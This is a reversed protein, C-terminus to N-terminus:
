SMLWNMFPALGNILLGAPPRGAIPEARADAALGAMLPGLVAGSLAGTTAAPIPRAPEMPANDTGGPHALATGAAPGGGAAAGLAATLGTEVLAGVTEVPTGPVGDMGETPM